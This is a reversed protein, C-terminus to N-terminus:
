AGNVAIALHPVAFTVNGGSYFTESGFATYGLYANTAPGVKPAVSVIGQILPAIDGTFVTPNGTALWTFVWQQTGDNQGYYLEFVVNDITASLAPPNNYGIPDTATGYRGLWVMVEIAAKSSDLSTKQDPDFFMDLAVNANLTVGDLDAQSVAAPAVQVDGPAYSWQVDLTLSNLDSVQIPLATINLLANPFSHVPQTDPGQPFEWTATFNSAVL